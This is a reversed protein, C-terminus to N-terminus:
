HGTAISQVAFHDRGAVVDPIWVGVNANLDGDVPSTVDVCLVWIDVVVSRCRPNFVDCWVTEFCAHHFSSTTGQCSRRRDVPEGILSHDLMDHGSFDFNSVPFTSCVAHRKVFSLRKFLWHWELRQCTWLDLQFVDPFNVHISPM